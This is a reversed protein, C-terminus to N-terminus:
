RLHKILNQIRKRATLWLYLCVMYPLSLGASFKLALKTLTNLSQHVRSAIWVIFDIFLILHPVQLAVVEVEDLM